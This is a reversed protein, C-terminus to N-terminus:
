DAVADDVSVAVILLVTLPECVADAGGLRETPPEAERDPVRLEVTVRLGDALRLSPALSDGVADVVAVCVAVPVALRDDPTLALLEAVPLKVPVRDPLPVADGEFDSPAVAVALEVPLLDALTDFDADTEGATSIGPAGVGDDDALKAGGGGTLTLMCSVSSSRGGLTDDEDSTTGMRLANKAHAAADCGPRRTSTM